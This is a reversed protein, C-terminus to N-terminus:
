YDLPKIKEFKSSILNERGDPNFFVKIYTVDRLFDVNGIEYKVIDLGTRKRLDAMLEEEREPLILHIKEYLIIKHPLDHKLLRSTELIWTMLVFILNTALLEAYSVTMALGNIVSIGIVMFLYTMERIPISETRYRIMGFIAFLGLAFGMQIKVNDLLFILLFITVGFLLFTFYYDRQGKKKYYLYHIIGWCIILNFAFRLLLQALSQNDFLPIGLFDLTSHPAFSLKEVVSTTDMGLGLEDFNIM